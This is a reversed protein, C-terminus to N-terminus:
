VTSPNININLVINVLDGSIEETVARGIIQVINGPDDPATKTVCGATTSLYLLDGAVIDGDGVTHVNSVFGYTKITDTDDYVGIAIARNNVAHAPAYTNDTVIYVVDGVTVGSVTETGAGTYSSDQYDIKYEHNYIFFNQKNTTSSSSTLYYNGEYATAGTNRITVYITNSLSCWAWEENLIQTSSMALLGIVNNYPIVYYSEAVTVPVTTTSIRIWYYIEGNVANTSWDTPITWSIYGDSSFDNTNDELDNTNSTLETWAGNFYEVKLTYNAGRTYFELKVGGFTAADGLYLYDDIEDMLSFETGAETGAESTYNNYTTLTDDYFYVLDYTQAVESGAEGRGDLVKDDFYVKNLSNYTYDSITYKWISYGSESHIHSWGTYTSLTHGMEYNRVYKRDINLDTFLQDVENKDFKGQENKGNVELIMDNLLSLKDTLPLNSNVKEISM